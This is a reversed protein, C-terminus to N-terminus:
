RSPGGMRAAAKDHRFVCKWGCAVHRGEFLIRLRNSKTGDARHEDM